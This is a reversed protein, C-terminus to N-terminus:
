WVGFGRKFPSKYEMGYDFEGCPDNYIDEIVAFAGWISCGIEDGSTTFWMKAETGYFGCDLDNEAIADTPVAVIKVFDSWKCEAGDSAIYTGSAHNTEWAGSGLYSSFGFHRDLKGDDDCDKNSLWADNWKMMLRVNGYQEQCSEYNVGGPRSSPTYDCYMGNYMRAQYNYGWQNYGTELLSGDSAYLQGDQITTCVTAKAESFAPAFFVAALLFLSGLTFITKKM